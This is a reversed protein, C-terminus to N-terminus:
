VEIRMTGSDNDVMAHVDFYEVQPVAGYVTRLRERWQENYFAQATARSEWEYVGAGFSSNGLFYKRHLGPIGKYRPVGEELVARLKDGTLGSPAPFRVFALCRM